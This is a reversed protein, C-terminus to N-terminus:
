YSLPSASTVTLTGSVVSCGSNNVDTAVAAYLVGDTAVAINRPGTSYIGSGVSPVARLCFTSPVTGSGDVKGGTFQFGSKFGGAVLDDILKAAGLQTLSEVNVASGPNGAFNGHGITSSYTMQATHILRLDSIASAENAARRAAMLNPIAIAAIIGIIVVVILLEVLSFGSEPKIKKM